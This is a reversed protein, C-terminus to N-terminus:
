EEALASRILARAAWCMLDAAEAEALGLADRSVIMAEMGYILVVASVLREWRDKPLRDALPAVGERAAEVPTHGRVPVRDDEPLKQQEAWRELTARLVERWLSEDAFQFKAVRRIVTEIRDEAAAPLDDFISDASPVQRIGLDAWLSQPNPFYRYATATSVNAAEAVEAISPSRGDRVLSMAADLLAERTRQKQRSRGKTLFEEQRSFSM